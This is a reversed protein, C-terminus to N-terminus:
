SLGEALFSAEPIKFESWGMVSKESKGGVLPLGEDKVTESATCAQASTAIAKRNL